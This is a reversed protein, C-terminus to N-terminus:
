GSLNILEEDSPTSKKDPFDAKFKRIHFDIYDRAVDESYKLLHVETENQFNLKHMIPNILTLCLYVSNVLVVSTNSEKWTHANLWYSSCYQWNMGTYDLVCSSLLKVAICVKFKRYAKKSM